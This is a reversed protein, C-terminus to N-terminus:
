RYSEPWRAALREGLQVVGLAIRRWEFTTTPAITFIRLQGTRVELDLAELEGLPGSTVDELLAKASATDLTESVLRLTDVTALAEGLRVRAGYLAGLERVITAQVYSPLAQISAIVEARRKPVDLRLELPVAATPTTFSVTRGLTGKPTVLEVPSQDECFDRLARRVVRRVVMERAARWYLLGGMAYGVREAAREFISPRAM